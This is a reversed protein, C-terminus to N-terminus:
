GPQGPRVRHATLWRQVQALEDEWRRGASVPGGGRRWGPRPSPQLWPALTQGALLEMVVFTRGEIEDVEYVPVVNPHSLRARTRGM